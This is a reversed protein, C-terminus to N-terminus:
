IYEILARKVFSLIPSLLLMDKPYVDEVSNAVINTEGARQAKTISVIVHCTVFIYLLTFSNPSNCLKLYHIEYPFSPNEQDYMLLSSFQILKM